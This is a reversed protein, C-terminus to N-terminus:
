KGKPEWAKAEELLNKMINRKDYEDFANSTLSRNLLYNATGYKLEDDLLARFAKSFNYYDGYEPKSIELIREMKRIFYQKVKDFYKLRVMPLLSEKGMLFSQLAREYQRESYQITDKILGKEKYYNVFDNDALLANDVFWDLSKDFREKQNKSNEIISISQIQKKYEVLEQSDLQRIQALLFFQGKEQRIFFLDSYTKDEDIPKTFYRADGNILGESFFDVGDKYNRLTLKQPTKKLKNRYIITNTSDIKDVQIFEKYTFDNISM